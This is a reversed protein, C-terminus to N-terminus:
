RVLRRFLWSSEGGALLECVLELSAREPSGLGPVNWVRYIRSAAHEENLLLRTAREPKALWPSPRPRAPGPSIEEFRRRAKEIAVGPEVDGAIVVTASAAGYCNEFWLAADDLSINDLDEILGYPHHAYPHERPYSHRRILGAM